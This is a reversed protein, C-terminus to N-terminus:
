VWYGLFRFRLLNYLRQATGEFKKRGSGGKKSGKAVEGGIGELSIVFNSEMECM